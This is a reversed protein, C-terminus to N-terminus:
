EVLKVDIRCTINAVYSSYTGAREKRKLVLAFFGVFM